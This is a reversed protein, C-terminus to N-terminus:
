RGGARALEARAAIASPAEPGLRAVLKEVAAALESRARERDGRALAVRGSTALFEGLRAEEAPRARCFAVAADADRQAEALAAPTALALRDLALQNRSLAVAPHQDTAFLKREIALARQHLELAAAPRGARRMLEGLYKIPARVENSEAGSQRSIAEIAARLPAEALDLRGLKIEAFARATVAAWTMPSDPGVKERYVSEAEAFRDRAEGFRERALAAFGLYRLASGLDYHGVARFIRVAEALAAEAESNRRANVLAIGQKVLAEGLTPHDPGLLARAVPIARAYLALAEESAATTDLVDALTIALRIWEPSRERGARAVRGRAARFDAISV